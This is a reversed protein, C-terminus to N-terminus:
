RLKVIDQMDYLGSQQNIIWLAAKLSGIAFIKRDTARHTLELREGNMLFYVTHEGVVDGGRLSSFGIENDKRQRNFDLGRFVFEQNQYKENSESAFKGLTLATGSPADKKYKHHIEMIEIEVEDKLNSSILDTIFCMINIGLSMNSARLIKLDKSLKQFEKEQKNTFGTTGVVLAKEKEVQLIKLIELTTEPTTFDIVVDSSKVCKELNDIIQVQGIKEGLCHHGKKECLSVINFSPFQESEKIISSGMKGTPGLVGLNIKKM